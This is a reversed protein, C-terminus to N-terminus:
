CRYSILVKIVYDCGRPNGGREDGQRVVFRAGVVSHRTVLTTPPTLLVFRAFVSKGYNTAVMGMTVAWVLCVM